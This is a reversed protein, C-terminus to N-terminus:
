GLYGRGNSELHNNGGGGMGNSGGGGGLLQQQLAQFRNQAAAREMTLRDLLSMSPMSGGGGAGVGGQNSFSANGGGMAGLGALGGMGSVGQGGGGGMSMGQQSMGQQSMGQQSMGQGATLQNMMLTHNQKELLELQARMLDNGRKLETKDKTLEGVQTQLHEVLDKSRKRAKAACQRNYARRSELKRLEDPDLLTEDITRKRGVSKAETSAQDSASNTDESISPQHQSNNDVDNSSANKKSEENMMNVM